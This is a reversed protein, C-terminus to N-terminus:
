RVLSFLDWLKNHIPTGTLCWRSAAALRCCAKSALSTKNKIQHAEDLVIRDWAIKALISGPNKAIKRRIAVKPRM